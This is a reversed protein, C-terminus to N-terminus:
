NTWRIHRRFVLVTWGGSTANNASANIKYKKQINIAM